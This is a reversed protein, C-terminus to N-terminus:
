SIHKSKKKIKRVVHAWERNATQHSKTDYLMENYYNAMKNLLFYRLFLISSSISIEAFLIKFLFVKSFFFEHAEKIHWVYSLLEYTRM